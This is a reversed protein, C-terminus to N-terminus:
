NLQDMVQKLMQNCLAAYPNLEILQSKAFKNGLRAANEFDEKALEIKNNRKYLIGRQTYAQSLTKKHQDTCLSIATTLDNLADDFQRLYQLIHARNNYLSPRNPTADIASNVLKIAEQLKGQEALQIAELEMQKTELNKATCEESDQIDVNNTIEAEGIPLNPNFICNLVAKDHDSLKEM